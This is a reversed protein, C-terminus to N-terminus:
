SWYKKSRTLIQQIESREKLFVLTIKHGAVKILEFVLFIPFNNVPWPHYKDFIKSCFIERAVKLLNPFDRTNRAEGGGIMSVPAHCSLIATSLIITFSFWPKVEYLKVRYEAASLQVNDSLPPMVDHILTIETASNAFRACYKSKCGHDATCRKDPNFHLLSRMLQKADPPCNPVLNDLTSSM